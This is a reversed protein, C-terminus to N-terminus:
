RSKHKKSNFRSKASKFGEYSTYVTFGARKEFQSSTKDFTDRHNFRNEPLNSEFLTHFADFVRNELRNEAM